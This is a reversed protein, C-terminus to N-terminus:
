DDQDYIEWLTDSISGSLWYKRLYDALENEGDVKLYNVLDEYNEFFDKEEHTPMALILFLMARSNIRTRDYPKLGSHRYAKVDEKLKAIFLPGKPYQEDFEKIRKYLRSNMFKSVKKDLEERHGEKALKFIKKVQVSVAIENTLKIVREIAPERSIRQM